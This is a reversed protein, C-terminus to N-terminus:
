LSGLSGTMSTGKKGMQDMKQNGGAIKGEGRTSGFEKQSWIEKHLMFGTIGKAEM